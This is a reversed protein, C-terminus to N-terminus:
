EAELGLNRPSPPRDEWMSTGRHNQPLEMDQLTKGKGSGKSDGEGGSPHESSAWQTFTLYSTLNSM